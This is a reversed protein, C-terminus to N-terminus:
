TKASMWLKTNICPISVALPNLILPYVNSDRFQAALSGLAEDVGGRDERDEPATDAHLPSAAAPSLIAPALLLLLM